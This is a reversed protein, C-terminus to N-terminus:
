DDGAERGGKDLAPMRTMPGITLPIRWARGERDFHTYTRKVAPDPSCCGALMLACALLMLYRM